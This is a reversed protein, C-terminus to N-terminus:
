WHFLGTNAQQFDEGDNKERSINSPSTSVRSGL